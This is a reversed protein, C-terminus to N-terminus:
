TDFFSHVQSNETTEFEIDDPTLSPREKARGAFNGVLAKKRKQVVQKYDDM